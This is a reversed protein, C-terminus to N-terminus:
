PTQFCCLLISRHVFCASLKQIKSIQQLIEQEKENTQLTTM